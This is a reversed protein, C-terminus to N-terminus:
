VKVFRAINALVTRLSRIGAGSKSSVMMLPQVVSKNQLLSEEIQTARRAVDIPFVTDTKTLVIQYKTKSREMLEILEYDRAKMGWKTDILLCVRKLGVRTSVYEKVLEEWAEKVEEKAYAFGYGPLDVLCLKKGLQFFNITQTLGPKDSTRVVGWQRTLANLLSSKGVNSRGAFAIEPLNPAPFSSSAKAAAFFELKNRFANEEIRERESSSSFPINDLPASLDINYGARKLDILRRRGLLNQEVFSLIEPTPQIARFQANKSMQHEEECEKKKVEKSGDIGIGDDLRKNSIDNPDIKIIRKKKKPKIDQTEADDDGELGAKDQAKKKGSSLPSAVKLSKEKSVESKKERNKKLLGSGYDDEKVNGKLKTALVVSEKGMAKRSLNKAESGASDRQKGQVWMRGGNTSSRLGVVEDKLKRDSGRKLSGKKKSAAVGNLVKGNEVVVESDKTKFKEEEKGYIRKKRGSDKTKLKEEEKGYIRKKRGGDKGSYDLTRVNRRVGFGEEGGKFKVREKLKGTFGGNGNKAEFSGENRKTRGSNRSTKGVLKAKKKLKLRLSAESSM